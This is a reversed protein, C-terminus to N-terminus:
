LTLPISLQICALNAGFTVAIASSKRKIRNGELKPKSKEQLCQLCQLSSDYSITFLIIFPM